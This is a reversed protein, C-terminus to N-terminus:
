GAGSNSPQSGIIFDAPSEQGSGARTITNNFGHQHTQNISTKGLASGRLSGQTYPPRGIYGEFKHWSINTSASHHHSSDAILQTLRRIIPKNSALRLISQKDKTALPSFFFLSILPQFARLSSGLLFEMPAGRGARWKWLIIIRTQHQLYEPVSM